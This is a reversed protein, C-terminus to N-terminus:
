EPRLQLRVAVLFRYQERLELLQDELPHVLVQRQHEGVLGGDGDQARRQEGHRGLVGGPLHRPYAVGHLLHGRRQEGGDEGDPEHEQLVDPQALLPLSGIM